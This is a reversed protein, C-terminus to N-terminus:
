SRSVALLLESRAGLDNLMKASSRRIENLLVDKVVSKKTVVHEFHCASGKPCASSGLFIARLHQVCYGGHKLVAM